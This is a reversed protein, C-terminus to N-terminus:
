IHILSLPQVARARAALEGLRIDQGNQPRVQGGDLWLIELRGYHEVLEMMQAHTFRVFQEWLEPHERVDYTPNRWHGVPWDM